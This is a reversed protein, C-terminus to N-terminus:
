GVRQCSPCFYTSRLLPGQRRMEITAGCRRCPEGEREYVWHRLTAVSSTTRRLSGDLNRRLQRAATVVLRDLTADDLDAVRAFPDTACLFLVESKFVNGIGALAQQDM